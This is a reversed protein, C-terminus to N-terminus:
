INEDGLVAELSEAALGVEKAHVAYETKAYEPEGSETTTAKEEWQELQLSGHVIVRDNKQIKNTVDEALIGWCTVKLIITYKIREQKKIKTRTISLRFNAVPTGTLTQQLKPDDILTGILVADALGDRNSNTLRENKYATSM